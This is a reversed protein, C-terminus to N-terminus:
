MVFRLNLFAWEASFGHASFWLYVMVYDLGIVLKRALSVSLFALTVRCGFTGFFHIFKM